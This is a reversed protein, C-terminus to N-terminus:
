GAATRGRAFVLGLLSYANAIHFSTSHGGALQIIRRLVTEAKKDKKGAYWAEAQLYLSELRASENGIRRYLEEAKEAYRRSPCPPKPRSGLLQVTRCESGIRALSQRNTDKLPLKFINKRM